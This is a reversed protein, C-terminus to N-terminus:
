PCMRVNLNNLVAQIPSAVGIGNGRADLGWLLGVVQSNGSNDASGTVVVSGSDGGDLFVRNRSIDPDISIQNTMKTGDERLVTLTTSSVAGFTLLTARGRKRVNDNLQVTSVGSVPGIDVIQCLSNPRLGGMGPVFAVAADIGPDTSGPTVMRGLNGVTTDTTTGDCKGGDGAAPQSIKDGIVGAGKALVHWNSLLMISNTENDVVFIGLTGFGFTDDCRGVSIGGVLPDYTATDPCALVWDRELVDTKVGDIKDPIMQNKPVDRRKKRVHVRIALEETKEGKTIKYGVDVGSVGPRKLLENEVSEKIRKIEDLGKALKDDKM